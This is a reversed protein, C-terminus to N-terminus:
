LWMPQDLPVVVLSPSISNVSWDGSADASLQQCVQIPLDVQGCLCLNTMLSSREKRYASPSQFFCTNELSEDRERAAKTRVDRDDGCSPFAVEHAWVGGIGLVEHLCPRDVQMDEM